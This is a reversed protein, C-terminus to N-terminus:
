YANKGNKIRYGYGYGYGYGFRSTLGAISTYDTGNLIIAMNHYRQNDYFKQIQPLMERELLGSRIIFITMDAHRNIIKADAIVEVPPCDLLIYDYENRLTDLMTKLRPSYLLEAPNPPIAGVPYIDFSFQKGSVDPRTEEVQYSTRIQDLSAHGSLYSTVGITPANTAFKSLSAKRLDLDVIAVKKNKIALVAALNTTIFTKGSGPNASTLAIIHGLKSEGDAMMELNTRIVRFAENIVNGCGKKVMIIRQDKEEPRAPRLKQIGHRKKYGLPIEGLFPVTLCELDRRGRVKTNFMETIYVAAAPIALGILLFILLTKQSTPAILAGTAPPAILRSNYATFAQSLENEERKQLLYLYLNEKVKQQREVSLLYRAQTPSAALQSSAAAQSTQAMQVSSNLLVIYNDISTLIAERMGALQNDIDVVLPNSASSNSVMQNRKLLLNNYATIQGEISLNELGSNAPLVNYSIASNSLYNRIYRAMGLRNNYNLVEDSASTARQFYMQSAQEVDPLRHTSKYSSIDSDVNGLENEIVALREKIFESTSVSIRNKDRIWNENYVEILTNLFDIAREPSVDNYTLEIVSCDNPKQASLRTGFASTTSAIPLKNIFITMEEDTKNAPKFAANPAVVIKGVPTSITDIKSITKINVPKGSVDENNAMFDSLTASGNKHLTVTMGASNEEPMEPFSISIPLSTGYITPNYLRGPVTYNVQLNLRKVVERITPSSTITLIENQINTNTKLLGMNSFAGGLDGSSNGQDEDKLLLQATSSYVPETKKIQYIGIALCIFLSIAFWYWRSIVAYLISKIDLSSQSKDDKFNENDQM